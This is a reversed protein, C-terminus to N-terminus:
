QPCHCRANKGKNEVPSPFPLPLRYRPQQGQGSQGGLALPCISPLNGKQGESGVSSIRDNM